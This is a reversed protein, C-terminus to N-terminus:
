RISLLHALIHMHLLTPRESLIYILLFTSICSHGVYPEKWGLIYIHKHYFTSIWSHLCALFTPMESLIYIRLFKSICSTYCAEQM